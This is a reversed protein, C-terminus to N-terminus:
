WCSGSAASGTTTQVGLNTISYNGCSDNVQDGQATATATFSAPTTGSAATVSVSVSYYDENTDNPVQIAQPSGTAGTYGLDTLSADYTNNTAYWREERSAIDLLATKASARRSQRIYKQYSPIAIAALIAVIAVVIMLEILSFGACGRHAPSGRTTRAVGAQRRPPRGFAAMTIEQWKGPVPQM